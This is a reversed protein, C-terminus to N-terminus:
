SRGKCRGQSDKGRVRPPSGVAERFEGRTNPKEGCVRPHDWSKVACIHGSTRKGACAPTIRNRRLLHSVNGDKGRVRPPSGRSPLWIACSFAKEGCVRPHNKQLPRSRRLQASKGACAPTIGFNRRQIARHKVKGRVRPPSGVAAEAAPVLVVKEGCVRPHDKIRRRATGDGYRKGACAPTIGTDGSVITDIFAKGRVRPPSGEAQAIIHQPHQKEGCVRPHDWWNRRGSRAAYSKGACAPTIRIASLAVDLLLAKGRVRPPSGISNEIILRTDIKEGCVRPHDKANLAQLVPPLRKGACAPTIGPEGHARLPATVKGRVRPPSGWSSSTYLRHM